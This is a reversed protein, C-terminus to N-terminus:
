SGFYFGSLYYCVILENRLLFQSSDSLNSLDFRLATKGAEAYKGMVKLCYVKKLLCNNKAEQLSIASLTTDPFEVLEFYNREYTLLAVDYQKNLLLSDGERFDQAYSKTSFLVCLFTCILYYKNM